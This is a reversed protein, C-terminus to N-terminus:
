IDLDCNFKGIVILIQDCDPHNITPLQSLIEGMQSKAQQM